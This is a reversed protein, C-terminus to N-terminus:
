HHIHRDLRPTNNSEPTYLAHPTDTGGITVEIGVYVFIFIAMLHVNRLGM